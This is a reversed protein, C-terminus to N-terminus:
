ADHPGSKYRMAAKVIQGVVLPVLSLSLILVWGAVGPGFLSLATSLGPLYVAGALLCTCFVLAAWVYINATIENRILASSTRRMNVIHWLRAFALTLFSVTVAKEESMEMPGMALRFAAIVPVMILGGYAFIAWWHRKELVPADPHRPKQAMVDQSGPGIGLALAPFVDNVINLFLIQLPLLPLPWGLLSALFVVLLESANGSLLYMVFKRINEFIIRGQRVAIVITRFADDKLIM